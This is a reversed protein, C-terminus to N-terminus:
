RGALIKALLWWWGIVAVMAISHAVVARALLSITSPMLSELGILLIAPPVNLVAFAIAVARSSGSMATTHNVSMIDGSDSQASRVAGAFLYALCALSVILGAVFFRRVASSNTM